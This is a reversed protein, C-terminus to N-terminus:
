IGIIDTCTNFTATNVHMNKHKNFTQLQALVTVLDRQGSPDGHVQLVPTYLPSGGLSPPETSLQKTKSSSVAQARRGSSTISQLYGYITSFLDLGVLSFM